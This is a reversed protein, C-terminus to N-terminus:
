PSGCIRGGDVKCNWYAVAREYDALTDMAERRLCDSYDQVEDQYSDMARLCIRFSYENEFTGISTLCIPYSPKFCFHQASAPLPWLVILALVLIRM